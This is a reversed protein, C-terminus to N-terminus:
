AIAQPRWEGLPIVVEGSVEVLSFASIEECTGLM